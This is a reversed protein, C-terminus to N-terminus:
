YALVMSPKRAGGEEPDAFTMFDPAVCRKNTNIADLKRKEDDMLSFTLVEAYEAVQAASAAAVSVAVQRQVNFRLVALVPSKSCSQAVEAAAPHAADAGDGLPHHAVMALGYRKCVGVLKRQSHLPHLELQLVAPKIRCCALVREVQPLDFNALGIYKVLGVDVLEEMQKWTSELTCAPDVELSGKKLAVPWGIYFCDLYTLGLEAVARKCAGAVDSHDDCALKASVFLDDRRVGSEGIAKGVDVQNLNEQSCDFHRYGAQLAASVVEKSGEASLALLPMSGGGPLPIASKGPGPRTRVVPVSDKTMKGVASNGTPAPGHWTGTNGRPRQQPLTHHDAASNRKHAEDYAYWHRQGHIPYQARPM